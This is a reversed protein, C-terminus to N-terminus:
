IKGIVTYNERDALNCVTIKVREGIEWFEPLKDKVLKRM